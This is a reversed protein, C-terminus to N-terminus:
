NQNQNKLLEFGDTRLTIKTHILSNKRYEITVDRDFIEIQQPLDAKNGRGLGISWTQGM